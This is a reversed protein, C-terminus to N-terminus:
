FRLHLNYYPHTYGAKPKGVISTCGPRFFIGVVSFGLRTGLWSVSCLANWQCLILHLEIWDAFCIFIFFFSYQSLYQLLFVFLFSIWPLYVSYFLCFCYMLGYRSGIWICGTPVLCYIYLYIPVTLLLICPLPTRAASAHALLTSRLKISSRSVFLVPKWTSGPHWSMAILTAIACSYQTISMYNQSFSRIERWMMAHMRPVQVICM